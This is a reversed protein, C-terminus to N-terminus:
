TRTAGCFPCKEATSDILSGCYRCNVKVTEKIIIQQVAPQGAPTLQIGPPPPGVPPPAFTMQGTGSHRPLARRRRFRSVALAVIVIVLVLVVLVVVILVWDTTQGGSSSSSPPAIGATLPYSTHTVALTDTVTFGDGAGDSDQETYLYGIIYGTSPDFYAKWNYTANFLGYEDNRQFTGNGEAFIATVYTGAATDLRYDYATAVVTMGTNLLYFTAGVPLSNNMFFWVYPNVYGSLNDTGNVYLFSRASFSFRGSSTWNQEAGQNNEYANVNYYFDSATGNPLVATVTLSGNIATTETYGTYNGVGSGLAITENYAFGDGPVPVHHASTSAIAPGALLVVTALLLIRGIM